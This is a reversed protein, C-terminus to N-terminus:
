PPGSDKIFLPSLLCRAQCHMISTLTWESTMAPRRSIWVIRERGECVAADEVSGCKANAAEIRDLNALKGLSTLAALTDELQAEGKLATDQAVRHLAELRALREEAAALLAAKEAAAARLEIAESASM